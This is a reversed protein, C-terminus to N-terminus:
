EELLWGIERWWFVGSRSKCRGIIIKAKELWRMEPPKNAWISGERTAYHLTKPLWLFVEEIAIEGVQPMVRRM